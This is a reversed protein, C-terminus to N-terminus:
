VWRKTVSFAWQKAYAEVTSASNNQDASSITDFYSLETVVPLSSLWTSEPVVKSSFSESKDRLSM